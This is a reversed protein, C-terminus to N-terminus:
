VVLVEHLSVPFDHEAFELFGGLRGCGVLIVKESGHDLLAAIIEAFPCSCTGAVKKFEGRTGESGGCHIGHRRSLSGSQGGGTCFIPEARPQLEGIWSIIMAM